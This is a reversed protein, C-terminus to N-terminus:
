CQNMDKGAVQKTRGAVLSSGKGKKTQELVSIGREREMIKMVKPGCFGGQCRGMGARVRRKVGDLSTAGLPRNIADIIEGESIGECRCIIHGYLPKKKILAEKRKDSLEIFNFIRKRKSCFKKKENLELKDRVMNSVMEGIAPASTLGPSEIGACDIFGEVDEVEEIIFDDGEEHARLGSFSTIIERIPIDKVKNGSKYIVEKMGGKTTDVGEKRLIDFATPGLLLNGHVTPAVLVGKGYENPLSFITHKVHNGASKDLLCYEGKRPTIRMKVQSAMNHINDAYVGAANIAIKAKIDERNTSIQIFNDIKQIGTVRTNFKFEVKNEAANEALAITLGFPCVIGGTPALLAGTIDDRLNPERRLAEDRSLISLDTVGNKVGKRYLEELQEYEKKNSAVVMSGNRQFMFDLDESLKEMKKNGLLNLKAKLSGPNADYGAHVIASNAKSTGCCVDEEKEIVCFDGEYKSIERACACGVVGAGIIAVDYM